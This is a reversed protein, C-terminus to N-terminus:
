RVPRRLPEGPREYYKRLERRDQAVKAWALSLEDESLQRGIRMGAAWAWRDDLPAAGAAKRVFPREREGPELDNQRWSMTM